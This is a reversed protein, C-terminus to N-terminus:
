PAPPRLVAAGFWHGALLALEVSLRDAALPRGLGEEAKAVRYQVTNRHLVLREAAAKFSGNEALFVRLTERLRATPEDDDALAGLVEGVWVRIQDVPGSMLALPAVDAYRTTTRADPGAARAVAYAGLAQQHTRRFGALGTGPAGLALRIDDPETAADALGAGSPFWVWATSEDQPVFLPRGDCGARRALDVSARELRTLTEGDPEAAGTWCVAGVHPRQIRYGLITEASALDVREDRLLAQIRSARAVSLNRQWNDKETDYVSVVEEAVQDIYWGTIGTVRIATESVMTADRVREGLQRLFWDQFRLLGVRYSRLLAAMPIGRQALRRATERAAAPAHVETMDMGHQLIHLVTAVNEAVSAEVVALVGRDTGLQPIERVILEYIDTSLEAERAAVADAVDAATSAASPYPRDM